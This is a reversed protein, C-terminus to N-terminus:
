HTHPDVHCHQRAELVGGRGRGEGEHDCRRGEDEEEADEAPLEDEPVALSAAFLSLSKCFYSITM